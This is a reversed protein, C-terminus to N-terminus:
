EIVMPISKCFEYLELMKKRGLCGRGFLQHRDKRSGKEFKSDNFHILRINELGINKIYDLPDYGCAFVHCTDVCIGFKKGVKECVKAGFQKFNGVRTLLETGQGAPTELLIPCKETAHRAAVIISKFMAIVAAKPELSTAKGVHVVVGSCGLSDGIQLTKILCEMPQNDTQGTKPNKAITKCLNIVHPAHIFVKCNHEEIFRLSGVVDDDDIRFRLSIPSSLFMQCATDQSAYYSELSKLITKAKPIHYGVQIDGTMVVQQTLEECTFVNVCKLMESYDWDDLKVVLLEHTMPLVVGAGSFKTGSHKANESVIIYYLCIQLISEKAMLAFNKSNKIDLVYNEAGYVIIDPHGEFLVTKIQEEFVLKKPELKQFSTFLFDFLKSAIPDINKANCKLICLGMGKAELNAVTILDDIYKKIYDNSSNDNSNFIGSLIKRVLYDVFIGYAAFSKGVFSPYVAGRQKYFSAFKDTPIFKALKDGIVRIIERVRMKATLKTKITKMKIIEITKIKITGM